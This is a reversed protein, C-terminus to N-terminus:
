RCASPTRARLAPPPPRPRRRRRRSTRPTRSPAAGGRPPPRARRARPLARPPRGGRPPPRACRARPPQGGRPPPAHAAHAHSHAPPDGGGLDPVLETLDSESAFVKSKRLSERLGRPMTAPPAGPPPEPKKDLLAAISAEAAAAAQAVPDAPEQSRTGASRRAHLRGKFSSGPAHAGCAHMCALPPRCPASAFSPRFTTGQSVQAARTLLTYINNEAENLRKALSLPTNGLEDVALVSAGKQLLLEITQVPPWLRTVRRRLSCTPSHPFPRTGTCPRAAQGACVGSTQM